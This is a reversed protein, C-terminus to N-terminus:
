ILGSLVQSWVLTIFINSTYASINRSVAGMGASTSLFSDLAIYLIYQRSLRYLLNDPSQKKGKSLKYTRARSALVM